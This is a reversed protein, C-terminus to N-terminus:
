MSFMSGRCFCREPCIAPEQGIRYGIEHSRGQRRRPRAPRAYLGPAPPRVLWLLGLLRQCNTRVAHLAGNAVANTGEACAIADGILARVIRKLENEIPQAPRIRYAHREM